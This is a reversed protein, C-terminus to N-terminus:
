EFSIVKFFKQFSYPYSCFQVLVIGEFNNLLINHFNRLKCVPSNYILNFLILILESEIVKHLYISFSIIWNKLSFYYVNVVKPAFIQNSNYLFTKMSLYDFKVISKEKFIFKSVTKRILSSIPNVELFISWTKPGNNLIVFFRLISLSQGEIIYINIIATHYNM